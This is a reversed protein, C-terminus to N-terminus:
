PWHYFSYWPFLSPLCWSHNRPWMLCNCLYEERCGRPSTSILLILFGGKQAKISCDKNNAEVQGESMWTSSAIAQQGDITRVQCCLNKMQGHDLCCKMRGAWNPLQILGLGSSPRTNSMSLWQKGENAEVLKEGARDGDSEVNESSKMLLLTVTIWHLVPPWLSEVTGLPLYTCNNMPFLGATWWKGSSSQQKGYLNVPLFSIFLSLLTFHFSWWFTWSIRRESPVM